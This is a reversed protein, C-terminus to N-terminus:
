QTYLSILILEPPSLVRVVMKMGLGSVELWTTRTEWEGMGVKLIGCGKQAYYAGIHMDLLKIHIMPQTDSLIYMLTTQPVMYASYEQCWSTGDIIPAINNRISMNLDDKNLNFCMCLHMLWNVYDWLTSKHESWNGWMSDLLLKPKGRENVTQAGYMEKHMHNWM